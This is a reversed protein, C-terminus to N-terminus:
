KIEDSLRRLIGRIDDKGQQPAPKPPPAIPRPAAYASFLTGGAPVTGEDPSAPRASGRRDRVWERRAVAPHLSVAEFLPWYGYRESQRGDDFERYRFEPQGIQQLLNKVDDRM